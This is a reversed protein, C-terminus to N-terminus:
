VATGDTVVLAGAAVLSRATADLVVTTPTAAQRLRAFVGAEETSASRCVLPTCLLLHHESAPPSPWDPSAAALLVREPRALFPIVDAAWHTVVPSVEGDIPGLHADAQGGARAQVARLMALEFRVVSELHRAPHDDLLCRGAFQQAEQLFFSSPAAVADLYRDIADAADAGLLRITLPLSSRIRFARWERQVQRTLRLGPSTSATPDAHTTLEEILGEQWRQLKM